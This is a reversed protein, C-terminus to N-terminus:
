KRSPLIVLSIVRIVIDNYVSEQEGHSSVIAITAISLIVINSLVPRSRKRFGPISLLISLLHEPIWQPHIQLRTSISDVFCM